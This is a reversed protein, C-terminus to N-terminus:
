TFYFVNSEDKSKVNEIVIKKKQALLKWNVTCRPTDTTVDVNDAYRKRKEDFESYFMMYMFAVSTALIPLQKADKKAQWAEHEQPSYKDEEWELSM